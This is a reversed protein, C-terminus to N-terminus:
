GNWYLGREIYLLKMSLFM